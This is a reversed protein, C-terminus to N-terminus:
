DGKRGRSLRVERQGDLDIVESEFVQERDVPIDFWPRPRLTCCAPPWMPQDRGAVTGEVTPLAAM